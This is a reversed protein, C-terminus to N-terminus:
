RWFHFLRLNLAESNARLREEEREWMRNEITGRTYAIQELMRDLRALGAKDLLHIDKINM